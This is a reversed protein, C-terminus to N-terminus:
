LNRFDEQDGFEPNIGRYDAIAYYSGLYKEKEAEDTIDEISLDPTAKRKVMSIPHIPMLWIIKVGLEKLQPIDKTFSAFDGQPSYQRINAEYIVASEMMENTLEPLGEQSQAEASSKQQPAEKCSQFALMSAMLLLTFKRISIKMYSSNQIAIIPSLACSK